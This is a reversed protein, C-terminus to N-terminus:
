KIHEIFSRFVRELTKANDVFKYTVRYFYYFIMQKVKFNNCYLVLKYMYLINLIVRGGRNLFKKLYCTVVLLSTQTEFQNKKKERQIKHGM